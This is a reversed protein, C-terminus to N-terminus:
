LLYAQQYQTQASQSLTQAKKLLNHTLDINNAITNGADVEPAVLQLVEAAYAIQIRQLTPRFTADISARISGIRQQREQLVDTYNALAQRTAHVLDHAEQTLTKINTLCTAATTTNGESLCPKIQELNAQATVIRESPDREPERLVQQVTGELFAGAQKLADHVDQRAQTVDDTAAAILKPCIERRTHDQEVVLKIQAELASIDQQTQQLQEAIPVRIALNAIDELVESLHRQQQDAWRTEVGHPALTQHAHNLTPVLNQWTAQAVTIITGADQTMRKALDGFEDWARVPDPHMSARGRAILGGEDLIIPLLADAVAELRFPHDPQSQDQLAQVQPRLVTAETEIQTLYQAIKQDKATIEQLLSNASDRNEAMALLVDRLSKEFRRSTERELLSQRWSDATSGQTMATRVSDQLGFTLTTEPDTLLAIAKEYNVIRFTNTLRHRQILAEAEALFKEAGGVLTLANTVHEVLEQAMQDTTGTYDSLTAYNVKDMLDILEHAKSGIEAKAEALEHEAQRRRRAARRNTLLGTTGTALGTLAFLLYQLNRRSATLERSAAIEAIAQETQQQAAVLSQGFDLSGSQYRSQYDELSQRAQTALETAAQTHRNEQLNALDRQISESTQSLSDAIAPTQEYIDMAEEQARIQELIKNALTAAEEFQRNSSATKAEELQQKWAEVNPNGLPGDVDYEAQFATFATQFAALGTEAQQITQATGQVTDQVHQQIAGNIRQIVVELAGPVDKGENQVANVFLRLLERPNGSPDAFNAEGVGLKDPLTEARMYIKRGQDSDFYVMFLVGSRENLEPNQVSQFAGSNGIGRSLTLDDGLVDSTTDILIVYINPHQQLLTQLTEIQDPNLPAGKIYLQNAATFKQVADEAHTIAIAPGIAETAAPVPSETTQALALPMPKLFSGGVVTMGGILMLGLICKQPHFCHAPNQTIHRM